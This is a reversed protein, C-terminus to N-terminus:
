WGLSFIANYINEVAYGFYKDELTYKPIMMFLIIQSLLHLITTSKVSLTICTQARTGYNERKILSFYCFVQLEWDTIM